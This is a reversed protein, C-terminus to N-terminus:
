THLNDFEVVNKPDKMTTPYESEPVNRRDRERELADTIRRNERSIIVLERASLHNGNRTGNMKRTSGSPSNNDQKMAM